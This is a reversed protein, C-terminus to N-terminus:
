GSVGLVTQLLMVDNLSVSIWCAARLLMVDNLCVDLM